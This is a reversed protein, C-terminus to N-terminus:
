LSLARVSRQVTSAPGACVHSAVNGRRLAARPSEERLHPQVSAPPLAESERRNRGVHPDERRRGANYENRRAGDDGQFEQVLKTSVWRQTTRYTNGDSAKYTIAAGSEPSVIPPNGSSRSEILGDHFSFSFSPLVVTAQRLKGRAIPKIAFFMGDLARDIASEIALREKEGGVYRFSSTFSLHRPDPTDARAVAEPLVISPAAGLLAVALFVAPPFRALITRV